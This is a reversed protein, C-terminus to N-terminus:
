KAILAKEINLHVDEYEEKFTFRGAEIEELIANLGRAIRKYDDAKLIGVKRLMKAHVLSGVIDYRYLRRDFSVSQTYSLARPDIGQAFRGSWKASKLTQKKKTKGM